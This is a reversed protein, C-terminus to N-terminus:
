SPSMKHKVLIEEVFNFQELKKMGIIHLEKIQKMQEVRYEEFARRDHDLKKRQRDM